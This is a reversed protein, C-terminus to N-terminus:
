AASKAARVFQFMIVVQSMWGAGKQKHRLPQRLSLRRDDAALKQQVLRPSHVRNTRCM